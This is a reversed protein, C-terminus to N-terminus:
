LFSDQDDLVKRMEQHEEESITAITGIMQGRIDKKMQGQSLHLALADSTLHFRGIVQVPQCDTAASALAM